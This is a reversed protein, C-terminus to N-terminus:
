GAQEGWPDTQTFGTQLPAYSDFTLTHRVSVWLRLRKPVNHLDNNTL